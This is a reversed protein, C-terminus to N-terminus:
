GTLRAPNFLSRSQNRVLTKELGSSTAIWEAIHVRAQRDGRDIKDRLSALGLDAAKLEARPRELGEGAYREYILGLQSRASEVMVDAIKADHRMLAGDAARLARRIDEMRDHPSQAIREPAPCAAPSLARVYSTLGDMVAPPPERGDFEETVIGHIFGQLDPKRPDQDIRLATKPGSLNPIPKFHHEDKGRKPSM